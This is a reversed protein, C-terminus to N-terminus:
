RSPPQVGVAPADIDKAPLEASTERDDVTATDGPGGPPPTTTDPAFVQPGTQPPADSAASAAQVAGGHGAPERAATAPAEVDPRKTNSGVRATKGGARSWPTKSGQRAAPRQTESGSGAAARGPGNQGKGTAPDAPRQGERGGGGSGRGAAADAPRQGQAAGPAAQSSQGPVSHTAQATGPPVMGATEGARHRGSEDGALDASYGPTGAAVTRSDAAANGETYSDIGNPPVGALSSPASGPGTGAAAPSITAPRTPDSPSAATGPGNTTPATDPDGPGQVRRNEPSSTGSEPSNGSHGNVTPLQSVPSAGPGPSVGVPTTDVPPPMDPPGSWDAPEVGLGPTTFDLNALKEGFKEGHSVLDDAHSDLLRSYREVEDPDLYYKGPGSGSTSVPIEPPQLAERIFQHFKDVLPEVAKAVVEAALYWMIAEAMQKAIQRAAAAILPGTVPGAPTFMGAIFSAALAALEILVAIQIAEIVDAAIDLATAAIGFATDLEEMKGYYYSWGVLIAQYSDGSMASGMDDLTGTSANFTIRVDTAFERTSEALERVQDVDVDPYPVGVANLFFVVESPIHISM